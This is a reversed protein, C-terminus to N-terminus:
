VPVTAGSTLIARGSEGAESNRYPRSVMRPLAFFRTRPLYCFRLKAEKRRGRSAILWHSLIIVSLMRRPSPREPM